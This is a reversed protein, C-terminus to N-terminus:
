LGIIEIFVRCFVFININEGVLLFFNIKGYIILVKILLM